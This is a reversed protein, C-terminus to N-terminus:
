HTQLPPLRRGFLFRRSYYRENLSDIRVGDPKSTGAHIFRNKGIYLGVHTPKPFVGKTHFFLIDGPQLQARKVKKGTRAQKSSTRPLHIGHQGFVYVLYGTCDFGKPTKGGYVYPVGQLSVATKIIDAPAVSQKQLVYVHVSCGALFLVLVLLYVNLRRM